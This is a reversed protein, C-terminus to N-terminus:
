RVAVFSRRLDSELTWKVWQGPQVLLNESTVARPGGVPYARLRTNGGTGLHRYPFAFHATSVATVMGVRHSQSGHILYIVIDSWNHNEVELAMEVGEGHADEQADEEGPSVSRAACGSTLLLNTLLGIGSVSKWLHM